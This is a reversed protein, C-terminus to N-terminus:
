NDTGSIVVRRFLFANSYADVTTENDSDNCATKDFIM